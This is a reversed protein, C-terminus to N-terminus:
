LYVQMYRSSYYNAFLYEINQDKVADLFEKVSYDPITVSNQVVWNTTRMIKREINQDSNNIQLETVSIDKINNMDQEIVLKDIEINDLHVINKACEKDKECKEEMKIVEAETKSDVMSKKGLLGKLMVGVIINALVSVSVLSVMLTNSESSVYQGIPVLISDYISKLGSSDFTDHGLIFYKMPLIVYDIIGTLVDDFANVMWRKVSNEDSEAEPSFKVSDEAGIDINVSVHFDFFDKFDRWGYSAQEAISEWANAFAGGKQFMSVFDDWTNAIAAGGNSFLEGIKSWIDLEIFSNYLSVFFMGVSKGTDAIINGLNEIHQGLNSLYEDFNNPLFDRNGDTLNFVSLVTYVVTLLTSIFAFLIAAKTAPGRYLNSVRKMNRKIMETKQKFMKDFNLGDFNMSKLSEPLGFPLFLNFNNFIKDGTYQSSFYFQPHGKAIVQSGEYVTYKLLLLDQQTIQSRVFKNQNKLMSLIIKHYMKDINKISKFEPRKMVTSLVRAKIFKHYSQIFVNIDDVIYSDNTIARAFLDRPDVIDTSSNEDGGKVNLMRLNVLWLVFVSREVSSLPMESDKYNIFVYRWEYIQDPIGLYVNLKTELVKVLAQEFPFHKKPSYIEIIRYKKNYVALIEHEQTENGKSDVLCFKLIQMIFTISPNIMFKQFLQVSSSSYNVKHTFPFNSELVFDKLEEQDQQLFRIETVMAKRYDISSLNSSFNISNDVPLKVHPHFNALEIYWLILDRTKQNILSGEVQNKMSDYIQIEEPSLETSPMVIGDGIFNNARQLSVLSVIFKNTLEVKIKENLISSCFQFFEFSFDDDSSDLEDLINLPEGNLRLSIKSKPESTISKIVRLVQSDFGVVYFLPKVIGESDLNDISKDRGLKFFHHVQLSGLYPLQISEASSNSQLYSKPIIYVRKCSNRVEDTLTSSNSNSNRIWFYPQNKVHFSVTLDLNISYIDDYSLNKHKFKSTTTIQYEKSNDAGM